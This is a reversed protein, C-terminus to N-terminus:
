RLARRDSLYHHWLVRAAVARWPRWPRSIRELRDDSPRTRLRKVRQAAIALALDGVPWVDPRRLVMLLYIRASWPGIGPVQKLQEEVAEDDLTELRKPVLRRERVAQALERCYRTKQRSFGARKLRTDSLRLFSAPTLRDVAGQLKRFTADASALSVQQELIIKVLTPFGPRRGWMPPPGHREVVAALHPDRRCLESVGALLTDATLATPKM